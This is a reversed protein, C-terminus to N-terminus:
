VSVPSPSPSVNIWYRVNYDLWDEAKDADAPGLHDPHSYDNTDCRHCHRRRCDNHLNCRPQLMDSDCALASELQCSDAQMRFGSQLLNGHIRRCMHLCNDLRGDPLRSSAIPSQLLHM